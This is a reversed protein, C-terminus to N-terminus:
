NVNTVSLYYIDSCEYGYVIDPRGPIKIQSVGQKATKCTPTFYVTGNKEEGDVTYSTLITNTYKLNTDDHLMGTMTSSYAWEDDKQSYTTSGKSREYQGNSVEGTIIVPMNVGAKYISSGKFLTYNYHDNKNDTLYKYDMKCSGTVSQQNISFNTLNVTITATIATNQPRYVNEVVTFYITGILLQNAAVWANYEITVTKTIADYTIKKFSTPTSAPDTYTKPAYKVSDVFGWANEAERFVTHFYLTAMSNDMVIYEDSYPEEESDKKCQGLSVIAVALIIINRFKM